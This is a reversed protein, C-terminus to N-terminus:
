RNGEENLPEADKDGSPVRTLLFTGAILGLLGGIMLSDGIMMAGEWIIFGGVIVALSGLAMMVRAIKRLKIVDM